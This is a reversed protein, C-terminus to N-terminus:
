GLNVFEKKGVLKYFVKEGRSSPVYDRGGMSVGECGTALALKASADYLSAKAAEIKAELDAITDSAAAIAKVADKAAKLDKKAGRKEFEARIRVLATPGKDATTTTSEAYGNTATNESM